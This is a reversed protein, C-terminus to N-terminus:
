EPRICDPLDNAPSNVRRSVRHAVLYDDPCPVLLKNLTELDTKPNLWAEFDRENLIVPMRDHIPEMEKNPGTTIVAYTLEQNGDDKDRTTWIGAAAFGSDDKRHFFYPQSPKVSRDWEYFGDLLVLCREDRFASMFMPKKAITEGRANMQAKSKDEMWRPLFGWTATSAFQRGEADLRVIVGEQSPCLNYRPEMEPLVCDIGPVVTGTSVRLSYRGCM